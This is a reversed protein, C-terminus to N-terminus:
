EHAIRYALNRPAGLESTLAGAVDRASAGAARLETARERLADESAGEPAGAGDIIIVVEGRPSAEVYYAALAAM